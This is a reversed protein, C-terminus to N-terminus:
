RSGGEKADMAVGGTEATLSHLRDVWGHDRLRRFRELGQDVSPPRIGLERKLREARLCLNRGRPASLGADAVRSEVIASPDLGFTAAVRRGFELKSLCTEGGVHFVGSAGAELLALVIESLDNVLIPTSRVDSWGPSRLGAETRALFWEALSQKPRANWGYINTRIVLAGPHAEVVAQEGALKSRGYVSVPTPEDDEAYDGREGDFVCDTSIHAFRTGGAARALFGAADRNLRFAGEPDAECADVDTAAACHIVWDPAAADILSRVAAPDTLDAVHSEVGDLAIGGSFSSAAVPHAASAQLVLNSGLLGGAGTVLIRAM